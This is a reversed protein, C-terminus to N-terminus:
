KIMLMKKVTSYFKKANVTKDVAEIRYFYIGSSFELAEFSVEYFGPNYEGNALVAVSKGLVDFVELKLDSIRPVSFKIRTVLNFPNPYNQSLSYDEPIQSALASCFIEAYQKIDKQYINNIRDSLIKLQTVSNLNSMGSALIQSFVILQTDGPMMSFNDAGIGIIMRKDGSTVPLVAGTDNGNCNKIRGKASTWGSNTEPDGSFVFKTKLYRGNGLPRTPDLFSTGTKKYGKMYFYANSPEGGVDNECPAYKDIWTSSSLFISDGTIKNVPGRLIRLGYAVKGTDQSYAFGLHRLSDCGIFENVSLISYIDVDSFLSFYLSDWNNNSKNIIQYRFMQTTNLPYDTYTWVTLRLEAMLLPNIIGGGFGEGPTRETSDADTMCVFVTQSANTMGPKDIGEEYICNNNVDQYPAGYPIMKYWNAYDPNTLENDGSKISYIKFDPNTQFRNNAVYGPVLEGRYSCCFMALQNNIKCGTSLGSSYCYSHVRCPWYLGPTNGSTTNQNFIGTNQIWTCAENGSIPVRQIMFEDQQKVATFIFLSIIFICVIFFKNM